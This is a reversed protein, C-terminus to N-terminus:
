ERDRCSARGIKKYSIAGPEQLSGDACFVGLWYAAEADIAKFLNDRVHHARRFSNPSRSPISNDERVKRLQRGTLGFKEAIVSQTLGSNLLTAIELVDGEGLPVPKAPRRRPHLNNKKIIAYLRKESINYTKRIESYTVANLYGEIVAEEDVSKPFQKMRQTPLGSEKIWRHITSPSAGIEDAVTLYSVGSAYAEIARKKDEDTFPSM